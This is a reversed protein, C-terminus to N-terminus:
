PLPVRLLANGSMIVLANSAADFAIQRVDFLKGPDAGLETESIFPTGILTDVVGNQIRRIVSPGRDSVYITGNTGVAVGSLFLFKATATSGDQYGCPSATTLSVPTVIGLTSIRSVTCGGTVILEGASTITMGGVSGQEIRTDSFVRVVGGSYKRIFGAADNFFIDGDSNVASHLLLPLPGDTLTALKRIFAGNAAHLRLEGIPRNNVTVNSAVVLTGDDNVKFVCATTPGDPDLTTPGNAKFLTTVAGAADIKRVINNDQSFWADGSAAYYLCFPNGIRATGAKGDVPVLFNRQGSYLSVATTLVSSLKINRNGQDSILLDGTRTFVLGSPVFFRSSDPTGDLDVTFDTTSVPGVGGLLTLLNNNQYIAVRRCNAYAIAIRGDSDIDIASPPVPQGGGCIDLMLRAVDLPTSVTSDAASILRIGARDAVYLNGALDFKLAYPFSFRAKQLTGDTDSADGVRGAFTTVNGSADIKRITHNGTDAIFLNGKSDSTIGAAQFRATLGPGDTSGPQNIAGAITTVKGQPTIQRVIQTAAEITYFNGDPAATIGSIGKLVAQGASGDQPGGGYSASGAVTTVGGSASIKRILGHSDSFATYGDAVYINGQADKTMAGPAYFNADLLPGNRSGAQGPNGAVLALKKVASELFISFSSGIATNVAGTSGTTGTTTISGNLTCTEGALIAGTQPTLRVTIIKADASLVSASTFPVARANCVLALKTGDSSTANSVALTIVPAIDRAVGTAGAAPAVSSLAAQTLPTPDPVTIVPPPIVGGTGPSPVTVPTGGGGGGGCGALGLTAALVATALALRLGCSSGSSQYVAQHRYALANEM